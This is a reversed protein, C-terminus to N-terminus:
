NKTNRRSCFSEIRERHICFGTKPLECRNDNDPAPGSLFSLGSADLTLSGAMLRFSNIKCAQMDNNYKMLAAVFTKSVM